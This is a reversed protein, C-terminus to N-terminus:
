LFSVSVEHFEADDENMLFKLTEKADDISQLIDEIIIEWTLSM